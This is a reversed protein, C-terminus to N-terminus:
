KKTGKYDQVTFKKAANSDIKLWDLHKKSGLSKILPHWGKFCGSLPESCRSIKCSPQCKSHKSRWQNYKSRPDHRNYVSFQPDLQAFSNVYVDKYCRPIYYVSFDRLRDSYHTSRERSYPLPVLQALESSFRGFYYRYFLSVLAVLGRPLGLLPIWVM